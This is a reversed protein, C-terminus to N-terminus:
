WQKDEHSKYLALAAEFIAPTLHVVLVDKSSLLFDIIQIAQRKFNRALGNAIEILVADTIVFRAGACSKTLEMARAHHQDRLNIQAIVFVTDIFITRLVSKVTPM